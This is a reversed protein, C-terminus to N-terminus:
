EPANPPAVLATHHNLHPYLIGSTIRLNMNESLAGCPETNVMVANASLEKEDAVMIAVIGPDDIAAGAPSVYV